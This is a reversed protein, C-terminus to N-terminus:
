SAVGDAATEFALELAPAPPRDSASALAAAHAPASAGPSVALARAHEFLVDLTLGDQPYTAWGFAPTAGDLVELFRAEVKARTVDAGELLGYVECRSRSRARRVELSDTIRAARLLSRLAASDAEMELYLATAPEHRRRCRELYRELEGLGPAPQTRGRDLVLLSLCIAAVIWPLVAVPQAAAAVLATATAAVRLGDTIHSRVATTRARAFASTGHLPM